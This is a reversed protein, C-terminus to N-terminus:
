PASRSRARRRPAAYRPPGDLAAPDVADAHAVVAAPNGGFLEGVGELPVRGRLQAAGLLQERHSREAEAALRQRRDDRSGLDVARRAHRPLRRRRRRAEAAPSRRRLAARRARRPRADLRAIQERPQRRPAGEQARRAGLRPRDRAHELVAREGIRRDREPQLQVPPGREGAGAVARRARGPRGDVVRLRRPQQQREVMALRGFAPLQPHAPQRPRGRQMAAVAARQVEDGVAARDDVARQGEGDLAGILPQQRRAAM